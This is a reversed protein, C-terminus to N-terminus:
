ESIVLAARAANLVSVIRLASQAGEHSLGGKRVENLHASMCQGCGALASIAFSMLEFDLKAIGPKGIVNMRLRTPLKKLEADDLLHQSRYYVNNMAMITAAARAAEVTADDLKGQGETLVVNVLAKAGLAYAGALAVGWLQTETLGPAGEPTLVTELNLRIDRGYDPIKDKLEQLTM